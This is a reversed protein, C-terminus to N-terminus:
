TRFLFSNEGEDRFTVRLFRDQYEEFHRTVACKEERYPGEYFITSPTIYIKRVLNSNTQPSRAEQKTIYMGSPSIRRLQKKKLLEALAFIFLRSAIGLHHKQTLKTLKSQDTTFEIQDQNSVTISAGTSSRYQSNEDMSISQVNITSEKEDYDEEDNDYTM